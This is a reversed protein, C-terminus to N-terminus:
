DAEAILGISFVKFKGNIFIKDSKIVKYGHVNILSIILNQLYDIKEQASTITEPFSNYNVIVGRVDDIGSFQSREIPSDIIPITFLIAFAPSGKNKQQKITDNYSKIVKLLKNGSNWDDQSIYDLNMIDFPFFEGIPHRRQNIEDFKANNFVKVKVATEVRLKKTSSNTWALIIDYTCIKSNVFEVIERYNFGTTLTFFKLNKNKKRRPFKVRGLEQGIPIWLNDLLQDKVLSIDSEM